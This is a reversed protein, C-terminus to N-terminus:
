RKWVVPTVRDTSTAKASTAKGVSSVPDRREFIVRGKPQDFIVKRYLAMVATGVVGDTKRRGSFSPTTHMLFVPLLTMETEGMSMYPVTVTQVGFYGGIGCALAETPRLSGHRGADTIHSKYIFQSYLMLTADSGTDLDLTAHRHEDVGTGLIVPLAISDGKQSLSLIEGSGRYRYGHAPMLTLLQNAFDIEVVYRKLLPMGLIGDLHHQNLLELNHLDVITMSDAIPVGDLDAEIDRAAAITVKESGYGVGRQKVELEPHIGLEQSTTMDLIDTNSGTDFLFVMGDRGNITLTVFVHQKFYEFPVTVIRDFQPESNQGQASEIRGTAPVHMALGMALLLTPFGAFPTMFPTM